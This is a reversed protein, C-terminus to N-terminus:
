RVHEPIESDDVADPDVVLGDNVDDDTQPAAPGVPKYGSGEEHVIRPPEPAALAADVQALAEDASLSGAEVVIEAGNAVAEVAEDFERQAEEQARAGLMGGAERIRQEAEETLRPEASPEPQERADTRDKWEVVAGVTVMEGDLETPHRLVTANMTGGAFCVMRGVELVAGLFAEDSVVAVERGDRLRLMEDPHVQRRRIAM